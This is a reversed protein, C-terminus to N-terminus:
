AKEVKLEMVRQATFGTMERLIRANEHKVVLCKCQPPFRKLKDL